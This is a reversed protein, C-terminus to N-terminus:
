GHPHGEALAALADGGLQRTHWDTMPEAGIREYFDISPQNWDLVRWEVFRCNESIARQALHRM